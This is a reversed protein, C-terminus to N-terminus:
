FGSFFNIKAFRGNFKIFVWDHPFIRTIKRRILCNSKLMRYKVSTRTTLSRPFESIKRQCEFYFIIKVKVALKSNSSFCNWTTM